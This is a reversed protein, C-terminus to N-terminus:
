GTYYGVFINDGEEQTDVRGCAVVHGDPTTSVAHYEGATEATRSWMVAGDEALRALWPLGDRTGAVVVNDHGIQAM